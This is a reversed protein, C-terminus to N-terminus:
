ATKGAVTLAPGRTRPYIRNGPTRGLAAGHGRPDTLQLRKKESLSSTVTVLPSSLARKTFALQQRQAQNLLRSMRQDGMRAERGQRFRAPGHSPPVQYGCRRAKRETRQKRWMAAPQVRTRERGRPRQGPHVLMWPHSPPGPPGCAQPREKWRVEARLSTAVTSIRQNRSKTNEVRSTM